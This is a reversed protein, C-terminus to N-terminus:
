ARRRRPKPPPEALDAMENLAKALTRAGYACITEVRRVGDSDEYSLRVQPSSRENKRYSFNNLNSTIGVYVENMNLSM